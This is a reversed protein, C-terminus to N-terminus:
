DFLDTDYLQELDDTLSLIDIHKDFDFHRRCRKPKLNEIDFDFDIYKRKRVKNNAINDDYISRLTYFKNNYKVTKYFEHPMRKRYSFEM